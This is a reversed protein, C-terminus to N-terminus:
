VRPQPRVSRGANGAGEQKKPAPRHRCFERLQPSIAFSHSSAISNSIQILLVEPFPFGRHSHTPHAFACNRRAWWTM